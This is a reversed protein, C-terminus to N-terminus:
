KIKMKVVCSKEMDNFKILGCSPREEERMSFHELAGSNGIRTDVHTHIDYLQMFIASVIMSNSKNHIRGCKITTVDDGLCRIM